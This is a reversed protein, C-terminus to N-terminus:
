FGTRGPNIEQPDFQDPGRREFGLQDVQCGVQGILNGREIQFQQGEICDISAPPCEVDLIIHASQLVSDIKQAFVTM